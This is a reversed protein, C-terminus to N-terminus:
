RPDTASGALSARASERTLEIAFGLASSPAKPRYAIALNAVPPQGKLPLYRVGEAQLQSMTAPIVSVGMGAAVFTVVSTMQPVEIGEAPTFGAAECAQVVANYLGIGVKRPYFIFMEDALERLDIAKRRALEHTAPVVALMPESLLTEVRVGPPEATPGRVFALDVSGKHVRQMLELTSNEVLSVDVGPYRARFTRILRPVFPHISASVTFGISLAGLEGSAIRRASERAREAGELVLRAEVLFAQGAETLAVGRRDRVFLQAGIERELQRIQQSLPPQGIGLREAARTFHLETAVAVFYKLHRLEM